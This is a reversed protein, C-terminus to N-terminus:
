IKQMKEVDEKSCEADGYRAQEYLGHFITKDKQEMIVEKEIEEPTMSPRPTEKLDRLVRKKYYKRIRANPTRDWFLSEKRKKRLGRKEEKTNVVYLKEIEDGNDSANLDFNLYLQYLKKVIQYVAYAALAVVFITALVDLLKLLFEMFASAEKAKIFILEKEGDLVGVDVPEPDSELLELIWVIIKSLISKMTDVIGDVGVLLAAIMGSIVFISQIGMMFLNNKILRKEPFRELNENVDFVEFMERINTKYMCLLLYLGAGIVAYKRLLESPYQRELFYMVVYLVLFQYEPTEIACDKEKARAYFYFAASILVLVISLKQEFESRAMFPVIGAALVAFLVFQWFYKTRKQAESLIIISPLYVLSYLFTGRDRALVLAVVMCHVSSLILLGTLYNIIRLPWQKM